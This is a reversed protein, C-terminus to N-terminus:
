NSEQRCCEIRRGLFVDCGANKKIVAKNRVKLETAGMKDVKNRATPRHCKNVNTM